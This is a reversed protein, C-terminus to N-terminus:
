RRRACRSGVCGPVRWLGDPIRRRLDHAVSRPLASTSQMPASLELLRLIERAGALVAALIRLGRRASCTRCCGAEPQEGPEPNATACRWGRSGRRCWRSRRSAGGCRSSSASTSSRACASVKATMPPGADCDDHHFGARPLNNRDMGAANPRADVPQKERGFGLWAVLCAAYVMLFSAISFASLQQRYHRLGRRRFVSPGSRLTLERAVAAPALIHCGLTCTLSIVPWSPRMKWSAAEGDSENAPIGPWGRPWRWRRSRRCRRLLARMGSRTRRRGAAPGSSSHSASAWRWHAAHGPWRMLARVRPQVDPCLMKAAVWILVFAKLWGALRHDLPRRSQTWPNCNDPLHGGAGPAHPPAEALAKRSRVRMLLLYVAALAVAFWPLWAHHGSDQLVSYLRGRWFRHLVALPALVGEAADERQKGSLAVTAM